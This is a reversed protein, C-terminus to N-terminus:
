CMVDAAIEARDVIIRITTIFKLHQFTLTLERLDTTTARQLRRRRGGVSAGDGEDGIGSGGLLLLGGGGGRGRPRM